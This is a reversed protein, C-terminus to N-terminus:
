NKRETLLVAIERLLDKGRARLPARAIRAEASAVLERIRKESYDFSGTGELVSIADDFEEPTALPNGLVKALAARGDRGAKAWARVVLLTRKGEFLDNASKEAKAGPLERAGLVDDRLQFAIGLDDGIAGLTRTLGSSGGALIAGMRLPSSVTYIASKLRHVTLVDRERVEGVPRVGNLVDLVQGYATSETMSRYEQLLAERRAPPVKCSLFLQLTSPELWDGLTIAMGEGFEADSGELGRRDHWRALEVHLTPGGRRTEGHDMIDDHILMWSQFAELAAAAPLVSRAQKGGALDYGALLLCARFRKGGRLTFERVSDVFPVLDPHIARAERKASAFHRALLTEIPARYRLLERLHM